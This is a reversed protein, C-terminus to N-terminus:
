NVGDEGRVRGHGPPVLFTPRAGWPAVDVPAAGPHCRAPDARGRGASPGRGSDRWGEAGLRKETMERSNYM